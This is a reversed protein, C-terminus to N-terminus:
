CPLGPLATIAGPLHLIYSAPIQVFHSSAAPDISITGSWLTLNWRSIQLDAAHLHHEQIQGGQLGDPAKCSGPALFVPRKMPEDVVGTEEVNSTHEARELLNLVSGTCEVHSARTARATPVADKAESCTYIAVASM